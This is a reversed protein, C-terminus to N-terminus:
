YTVAPYSRRAFARGVAYGLAISGAVGASLQMMSGPVLGFASGFSTAVGIGVGVIATLPVAALPSVVLKRLGAGGHILGALLAGQVVTYGTLLSAWGHLLSSM